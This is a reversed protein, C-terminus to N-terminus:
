GNHGVEASIPLDVAVSLREEDEDLVDAPLDNEEVISEDKTLTVRFIFM